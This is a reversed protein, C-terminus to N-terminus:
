MGILVVHMNMVINDDTTIIIFAYVYTYQRCANNNMIIISLLFYM